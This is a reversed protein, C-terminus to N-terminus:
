SSGGSSSSSAPWSGLSTGTPRDLEAFAAATAAAEEDSLVGVVSGANVLVMDGKRLDPEFLTNCRRLVGAIEVVARAGEVELVRGPMSVCM